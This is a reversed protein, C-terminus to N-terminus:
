PSSVRVCCFHRSDYSVRRYDGELWLHGQPVRTKQRNARTVSHFLHKDLPYLFRESEILDNELAKVRKIM